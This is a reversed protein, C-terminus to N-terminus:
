KGTYLALIEHFGKISDKLGGERNRKLWIEQYSELIQNLDNALLNKTNLPINKLMEGDARLREIGQLCSHQLIKITLQYEAEILHADECKMQHQNLQELLIELKKLTLTLKEESLGKMKSDSIALEPNYLLHALVSQNMIYLDPLLYINGLQISLNGMTRSPDQFVFQDLLKDLQINHQSSQCWSISAGYVFGPYSIPLTQWHGNDGWDTILYGLAQNKMGYKAANQLNSIANDHRGAISCWSSTGPCVYYPIGAAAFIETEKEFPHDAEYGWNLAIIPKPLQPILEPHNLVIDGWFQMLKGEQNVLQHIKQLFELYVVGKGRAECVEKSKGQGLDFTEDCGVNFQHSSFNPLLEQYLESLLKPGDPESPCLSFPEARFQGTLPHLFGEPTESLHKYPPHQLWRTLHGFSNQNPVLEIFRSKCYKDLQIIEEATMPSAEEWVISHNKYAFTHETYLQVQNIKWHALYDILHYLTDMTPVKDRSIDVMIGRYTFDPYDHINLCQLHSSSQSVIQSLTQIGYFVGQTSSAEIIIQQNQITLRYGQPHQNLAPQLILLIATENESPIGLHIKIHQSELLEQIQKALPLLEQEEGLHNALYISGKFPLTFTGEQPNIYRPYPLLQLHELENM